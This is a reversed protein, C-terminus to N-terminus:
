SGKGQPYRGAYGASCTAQDAGLGGCSGSSHQVALRRPTSVHEVAAAWRASLCPVRGHPLSVCSQLQSLSDSWRSDM